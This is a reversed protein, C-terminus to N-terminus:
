ECNRAKGLNGFGCVLVHVPAHDAWKAATAGPGRRADGALRIHEVDALDIAANPFRVVVAAGPVRDEIVLRRLRDAGDRYGRGVGVDNIHAAALAEVTWIKGDAVANVFGGVGALGPGMETKDVPLLNGREGHIRAIRILNKGGHEAM